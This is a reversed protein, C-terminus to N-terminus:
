ATRLRQATNMCEDADRNKGQSQLLAALNHWSQWFKKDIRIAERFAKEADDLRQLAVLAM